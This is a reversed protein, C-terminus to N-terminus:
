KYLEKRLRICPRIIKKYDVQQLSSALIIRFHDDTLVVNMWPGYYLCDYKKNHYLINWIEEPIIIFYEDKTMGNYRMFLLPIKKARIGDGIAQKLFEKIKCSKKNLLLHEFNIDKYDKTEVSFPFKRSHREDSCVLDSAINDTKRWRLGGSSPTRSFEYGTWEQFWKCLSRENKSGKKKSNIKTM